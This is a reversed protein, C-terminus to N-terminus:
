SAGSPCIIVCWFRVDVKAGQAGTVQAAVWQLFEPLFVDIRHGKLRSADCWPGTAEKASASGGLAKVAKALEKDSMEESSLARLRSPDARESQEQRDGVARMVLDINQAALASEREQEAVQQTEAEAQAAEETGCSSSDKDADDEAMLERCRGQPLNTQLLSLPTLAAPSFSLKTRQPLMATQCHRCPQVLAMAEPNNRWELAKDVPAASYTATSRRPRESHRAFQQQLMMEQSQSTVLPIMNVPVECASEAPVSPAPPAPPPLSQRRQQSQSHNQAEEGSASARADRKLRARVEQYRAYLAKAAAIAAAEKNCNAIVADLPLARAAEAKAESISSCGYHRRGKFDGPIVPNFRCTHQQM